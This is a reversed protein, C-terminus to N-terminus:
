CLENQTDIGFTMVVWEMDTSVNFEFGCIDVKTCLKIIIWQQQCIELPGVSMGLAM